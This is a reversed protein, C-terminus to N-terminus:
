DVWFPLEEGADVTEQSTTVDTRPDHALDFMTDVGVRLGMERPDGTIAVGAQFLLVGRGGPDAPNKAVAVYVVGPDEEPAEDEWALVGRDTVVCHEPVAAGRCGLLGRPLGRGVAVVLLDGDYEGTSDFRLEAGVGGVRFEEAADGERQASDPEGAYEGAVLALAQPTVPASGGASPSKWGVTAQDADTSRTADGCGGVVWALVLAGTLSLSLKM